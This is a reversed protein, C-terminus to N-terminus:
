ETASLKLNQPVEMELQEYAECLYRRSLLKEVLEPSKFLQYQTITVKKAVEEPKLVKM